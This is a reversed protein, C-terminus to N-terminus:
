PRSSGARMALNLELKEFATDRDFKTRLAILALILNNGTDGGPIPSAGGMNVLSAELRDRLESLAEPSRIADRASTETTEAFLWGLADRM